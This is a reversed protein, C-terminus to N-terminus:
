FPLSSGTDAHAPSESHIEGSRREWFCVVRAEEGLAQVHTLRLVGHAPSGVEQLPRQGGVQGAEADGGADGDGVRPYAGVGERSLM